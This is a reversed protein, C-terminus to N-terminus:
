VSQRQYHPAGFSTSDNLCHTDDLEGLARVNLAFTPDSIFAGSFHSSYHYRLEPPGQSASPQNPQSPSSIRLSQFDVPLTNGPPPSPSSSFSMEPVILPTLPVHHTSSTRQPEITSSPSTFVSQPTSTTAVPTPQSESTGASSIDSHGPTHRTSIATAAYLVTAPNTSPVHPASRSSNLPEDSPYPAADDPHSAPLSPPTIIALISDRHPVTIPPTVSHHPAESSSFDQVHPSDPRHSHINCLPYSSPRYLRAAGEPSSDSFATLAADTGRHLAIYLHRTMRLFDVQRTYRDPSENQAEQAIANWLACFEHQLEPLTNRIDFKSLAQLVIYSLSAWGAHLSLRTTLILNALLVSDGQALYGQFVDEPIGLHDRALSIWRDNREQVCAIILATIVQMQQTSQGDRTKDWSRLFHGIEISHLVGRWNGYIIIDLVDSVGISPNIEGAANLCIFLRRIKVSESVSNSPLTRGLFEWLTWLTNREVMTSLSQRLDKAVDSKFYGPITEFFKELTDDEGLTDITWELIRADIECSQGSVDHNAMCEVGVFHRPSLFYSINLSDFTARSSLCLRIVYVAWRISGYLFLATSSLPSCYPSDHWSIPMLTVGVYVASLLGVWCIVTNFVTHHINFLYIVLGAFFMFLSVHVLAPLAEVTWGVFFKEVGTAFSAHTRARKHPSCRAPQTLRLYRRAWQQLSTALMACSLSIVLSLFWLSNVWIAYTPPTFEPPQAIDSPTSPRSVNPDAQIQYMKGLYFASIDQSNPRLDQWHISISVLTPVVASFLGNEELDTYLPISPSSLVCSSLSVM